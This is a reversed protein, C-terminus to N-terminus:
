SLTSDNSKQAGEYEVVYALAAICRGIPEAIGVTDRLAQRLDEAAPGSDRDWCGDDGELLLIPCKMEALFTQDVDEPRLCAFAIQSRLGKLLSRLLAVRMQESLRDQYLISQVPTPRVPGSYLFEQPLGTRTVILMGAWLESGDAASQFCVYATALTDTAADRM